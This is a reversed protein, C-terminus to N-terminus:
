HSKQLVTYLVVAQNHNSDRASYILTVTRHAKELNRLQAMMETNAALEERYRRQFGIWRKPDHGFWKRLKDSPAIEKMWLDIGAKEKSVGRPWIRDVLVRYGDAPSAPDYIRKFTFM